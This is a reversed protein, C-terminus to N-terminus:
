QVFKYYNQAAVSTEINEKFQKNMKLWDKKLDEQINWSFTVVALSFTLFSFKFKVNEHSTNHACLVSDFCKCKHTLDHLKGKDKFDFKFQSWNKGQNCKAM